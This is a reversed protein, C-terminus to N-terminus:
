RMKLAPDGLINYTDMMFPMYGKSGKYALLAQRVADGITKGGSILAKYFERNLITAQADDSLGTPAWVAAVGGDPKLLLAETLITEYPDVFYGALCTM